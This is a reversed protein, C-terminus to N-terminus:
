EGVPQQQTTRAQWERILRSVLENCNDRASFLYVGDLHALCINEFKDKQEAGAREVMFQDEYIYQAFERPKESM